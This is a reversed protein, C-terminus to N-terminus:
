HPVAVRRHNRMCVTGNPFEHNCVHRLKTGNKITCNGDTNPCIGLNWRKCIDSQPKKAKQKAQQKNNGSHSNSQAATSPQSTGLSEATIAPLRSGLWVKWTTVLDSATLFPQRNRWAEANLNLVHDVFRTLIAAQCSTGELDAKCFSTSMLFGEIASISKNFPMAHSMAERLVRLATEFEKMERIDKLSEGVELCNDEESIAFRKSAASKNITNSMSFMKLQMGKSGPKHIEAWGKATVHGTLGVSAMDYSSIALQGEKGIADRAMLWMDTNSRAAGPLFRAPHIVTTRNDEGAVVQYMTNTINDQNHTLKDELSQARDWKRRSLEQEELRLLQDLPKSLLFSDPLDALSPLRLRM